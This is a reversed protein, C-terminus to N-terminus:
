EELIEKKFNPNGFGRFRIGKKWQEEFWDMWRLKEGDIGEPYKKKRFGGIPQLFKSIAVQTLFYNDDM